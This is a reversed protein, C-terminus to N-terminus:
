AGTFRNSIHNVHTTYSKYRELTYATWWLRNRMEVTESNFGQGNYKRHMGNQIAMKITLGVYTYALGQTDLPMAYLALLLCAQVSELSAITIVDPLLTTAMHYLPMGVDPESPSTDGGLPRSPSSIVSPGSDMHAYQTGIALVMLVACIWGADNTSIDTPSSYLIDLKEQLWSEKVYFFNTEVFRFFIQTLFGAVERPPLINLVAYVTSAPSQLQTARFYEKIGM